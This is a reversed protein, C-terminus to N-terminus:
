MAPRLAGGALETFLVCALWLVLALAAPVTAFYVAMKLYTRRPREGRKLKPPLPRSLQVWVAFAFATAVCIIYSGIMPEIM